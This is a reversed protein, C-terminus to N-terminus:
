ELLEQNKLLNNALLRVVGQYKIRKNVQTKEQDFVCVVAQGVFKQQLQSSIVRVVRVQKESHILDVTEVLRQKLKYM